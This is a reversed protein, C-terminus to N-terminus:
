NGGEAIDGGAFIGEFDDGIDMRLSGPSSNSVAGISGGAVKGTFGSGIKVDITRAETPQAPAAANKIASLIESYSDSVQKSLSVLTSLTRWGNTTITYAALKRNDSVAKFYHHLWVNLVDETVQEESFGYYLALNKRITNEQESDAVGGAIVSQDKRMSSRYSFNKATAETAKRQCRGNAKELDNTNAWVAISFATSVLGVIADALGIVEYLEM